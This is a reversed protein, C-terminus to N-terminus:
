TGSYTCYVFGNTYFRKQFLTSEVSLTPPKFSSFTGVLVGPQSQNIHECLGHVPYAYGGQDTSCTLAM